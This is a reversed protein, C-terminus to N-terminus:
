ASEVIRILRALDEDAFNWSSEIRRQAKDLVITFGINTITKAVEPKPQPEPPALEVKMLRRRTRAKILESQQQRKRGLWCNRHYDFTSVPMGIRSCFQRRAMGSEEYDKMLGDIEIATRKAAM